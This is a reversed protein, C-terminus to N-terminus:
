LMLARWMSLKSQLIITLLKSFLELHKLYSNCKYKKHKMIEIKLSDYSTKHANVRTHTIVWGLTKPISAVSLSGSNIIKITLVSFSAKHVVGLTKPIFQLQM